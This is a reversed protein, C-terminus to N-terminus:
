GILRLYLVTLGDTSFADETSRGHLMLDDLNHGDVCCTQHAVVDFKPPAVSLDAYGFNYSPCWSFATM